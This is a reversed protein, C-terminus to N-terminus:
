EGALERRVAQMRETREAEALLFRLVPEVHEPTKDLGKVVESVASFSVGSARAITRLRPQGANLRLTIWLNHAGEEDTQATLLDLLENKSWHMIQFDPATGGLYRLGPEARPARRDVVTDTDLGMLTMQSKLRDMEQRDESHSRAREALQMRLQEVEQETETRRVLWEQPDGNWARVLAALVPVTPIREGRMAAYLTSRPIYNEAAIADITKADFGAQDRLRRLALAFRAQPGDDPRLPTPRRPM